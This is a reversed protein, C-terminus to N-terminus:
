ILKFYNIVFNKNLEIYKKKPSQQKVKNIKKIINKNGDINYIEKDNLDQLKLNIEAKKKM